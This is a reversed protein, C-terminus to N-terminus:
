KKGGRLERSRKCPKSPSDPSSAIIEARVGRKIGMVGGNKSWQNGSFAAASQM